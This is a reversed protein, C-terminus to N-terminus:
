TNKCDWNRQIPETTNWRRGLLSTLSRLFRLFCTTDPNCDCLVVQKTPTLPRQHNFITWSNRHSRSSFRSSTLRHTTLTIWEWVGDRLMANFGENGTQTNFDFDFNFDGIANVPLTQARAWERLGTAQETRLEADGRALHVTVFYFEVDNAKDRFLAVLPSRHRGNNFRHQEFQNPESQKLLELRVPNYLIQLRDSSGTLGNIATHDPLAKEYIPQDNAGVEQLAVIQCNAFQGLQKAISEPDNGGSEVNWSVIELPMSPPQRDWQDKLRSQEQKELQWQILFYVSALSIVTIVIATRATIRM